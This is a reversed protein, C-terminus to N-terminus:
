WLDLVKTVNMKEKFFRVLVGFVEEAKLAYKLALAVVVQPALMVVIEKGKKEEIMTRLKAISM